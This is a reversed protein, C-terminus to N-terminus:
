PRAQKGSATAELTAPYVRRAGPHVIVMSETDPPIRLHRLAESMIRSFVPAAIEGGYPHGVQPNDVVVLLALRPNRVPGFGAFSTIYSNKGTEGYGEGERYKRTTGTKGAIRYGPVRALKGTGRLIVGELLQSLAQATEAKMVVRPEGRDRPTWRGSEDRTGEVLSPPQRVGNNAVAAIASVLQIATTSIGYGMSLSAKHVTPATNLNPLVGNVEGPYLLGTETGFGFNRVYEMFLDGSIRSSAKITGINSSNELVERFSLSGFRKHDNYIRNKVKYSGNECFFSESPRVLGQDLLAAATIIKFTSGPESVDCIARNRKSGFSSKGFQELNATPRNALALIKGTSPEILVATAADAKHDRVVRQLEREVVHQLVSDITLYVDEYPHDPRTLRRVFSLGNADRAWYRTIPDGQLVSDMSLEVGELGKQGTGAFGVVHAALVGGPYSRRSYKELELVPAGIRNKIISLNEIQDAQASSLKKVLATRRTSKRIKRTIAQSSLGTLPSLEAALAELDDVQSPYVYLTHHEISLALERGNRDLISGRHGEEVTIDNHQKQARTTYDDAKVIQITYLKFFVGAALALGLSVVVFVRNRSAAHM